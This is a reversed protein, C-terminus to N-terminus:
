GKAAQALELKWTKPGWSTLGTKPKFSKEKELHGQCLSMLWVM